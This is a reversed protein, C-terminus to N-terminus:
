VANYGLIYYEEDTLTLEGLSQVVSCTLTDDLFGGINVSILKLTKM